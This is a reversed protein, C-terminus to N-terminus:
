PAYVDDRNARGLTSGSTPVIHWDAASDTDVSGSSRCITRTSTTGVSRACDEPVPPDSATWAGAAVIASVRDRLSATGFGGYRTDSGVTRESYPVADLIPGNPTLCVSLAGNKGSLAGDGGRYWLDWAGASADRGGSATREVSEDIEAELGEPKLHLVIYDGQEVRLPAFVYRVDWDSPVGVFFTLGACQGGDAVYLEVADPHTSSGETLLENIVLLPPDPNYGWYPLLFDCRNGSGDAVAGTLAYSAGPEQSGDLDVQVSLGDDAVVVSAVEPGPSAGFVPLAESLPEDFVVVVRREDEAGWSVIAPPRMDGPEFLPALPEPVCGPFMMAVAGVLVVAGHSFGGRARGDRM